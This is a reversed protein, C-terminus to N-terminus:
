VQRFPRREGNPLVVTLVPPRFVYKGPVSLDFGILMHEMCPNNRIRTVAAYTRWGGNAPGAPVEVPISYATLPDPNNRVTMASQTLSLFAEKGSLSGRGEYLVDWTMELDCDGPFCDPGMRGMARLLSPQGLSIRPYHILIKGPENRGPLFVASAESGPATVLCWSQPLTTSKMDSGFTLSYPIRGPSAWLLTGLVGFLLFQRLLPPVGNGSGEPFCTSPQAQAPPYFARIESLHRAADPVLRWAERDALDEKIGDEAQVWRRVPTGLWAMAKSWRRFLWSNTWRFKGLSTGGFFWEWPLLAGYLLLLLKRLHDGRKFHALEHALVARLCELPQGFGAPVTEWWPDRGRFAEPVLGAELCIRPRLGGLLHAINAIKSLHLTPGPLWRMWLPPALRRRLDEMGLAERFAPEAIRAMGPSSEADAFASHAIMEALWRIFILLVLAVLVFERGLLPSAWHSWREPGTRKLFCTVLLALPFLLLARRVVGLGLDRASRRGELVWRGVWAALLCAAPFYLLVLWSM